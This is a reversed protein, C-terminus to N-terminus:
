NNYSNMASNLDATIFTATAECAREVSENMIKRSAADYKSLVYDALDWGPPPKGTGIRVRPFGDNQLQYIISKMGNHTGASGKGRVRIKGMELDVDDYIVLLRDIPIKYWAMIERLSEGSLNMFTQPKVLLVRKGGITGEGYLAKFKLKKLPISNKHALLDITEFGVNHRTNDYRNGPNGLGVIIYLDDL